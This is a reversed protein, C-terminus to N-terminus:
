EKFTKYFKFYYSLAKNINIISNKYDNLQIYCKSIMILSYIIKIQNIGLSSNINKCEQFYKIADKFYNMQKEKNKKNKNKNSIGPMSNNQGILNNPINGISMEIGLQFKTM